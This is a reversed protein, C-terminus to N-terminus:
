NLLLTKPVHMPDILSITETTGDAFQKVIKQGDAVVVYGMSQMASKQADKGAKQIAHLFRSEFSITNQRALIRAKKIRRIKFHRKLRLSSNEGRVTTNKVAIESGM